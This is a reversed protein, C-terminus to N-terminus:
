RSRDTPQFLQCAAAIRECDITIKAYPWAEYQQDRLELLRALQEETMPEGRRRYSALVADPAKELRVLVPTYPELVRHWHHLVRVLRPDKWVWPRVLTALAAGMMRDHVAEGRALRDNIERGRPWEAWPDDDDPLRWGLAALQRTTVTTNSHGVALVVLCPREGDDGCANVVHGEPPLFEVGVVEKHRALYQGARARLRAYEPDSRDALHEIWCGAVLASLWGARRLSWFWPRHEGLPLREDWPVQLLAERRGVFANVVLDCPRYCTGRPTTRPSWRSPVARVTGRFEIFEHCWAKRRRDEILGAGAVALREDSALVDALKALNFQAGPRMDEELIALYPTTTERVLRNRARSVNGDTQMAVVRVGPWVHSALALFEELLKRRQPMWTVGVTVLEALPVRAPASWKGLPCAASAWAAKGPWWPRPTMHCGCSKHTCVDQAADYLECQRCIALRRQLEDESVRPAGQSLHTAAARAFNAARRLLGPPRPTTCTYITGCRCVVRGRAPCPHGCIPCNM